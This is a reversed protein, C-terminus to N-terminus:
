LTLLEPTTVMAGTTLKEYASPLNAEGGPQRPPAVRKPRECNPHSQHVDPNVRRRPRFAMSRRLREVRGAGPSLM